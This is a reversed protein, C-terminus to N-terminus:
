MRILVSLIAALVFAPIWSVVVALRKGTSRNKWGYIMSILTIVPLLIVASIYVLRVATVNVIFGGSVVLIYDLSMVASGVLIIGSLFLGAYLLIKLKGELGENL